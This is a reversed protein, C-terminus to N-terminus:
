RDEPELGMGKRDPAEPRKPPTYPNRELEELIHAIAADLQIDKGGAMKGPDDIVEIDPDVGHGEVGWTGDNEYFGFTPVNTDGGDVFGPNGSIGVLGGWTRMGILKGLKNFRFLWPFMDGGSGALGNILMCKPGQQADPPWPWDKGDRRAWLNTNPRNLLEIFRTPIQGGGNWREDIILAGRDIQGYFQRVLDNQGDIGTNPVYIYGVRGHTKDAVYARNKEIWARYRLGAESGEPKVVVDRAKDDMTPNESVTLTVNLGAMGELAAWPDRSTDVPVSNVALLYEGEKVESGPQKLPSRADSDWPAGEYIKTIRYAGNELAFDCGLLGVSINPEKEGDGFGRVYAHGVNLESIMEGIIYSLDERSSCDALMAEYQKRIAPWDVGHMNAVYFFDRHLRWAETFIQRWEERPDVDINMGAMPVAKDLKQDAAADVVFFSKGEKRVLLKKGDASIAYGGIDEAVKKEEKKDAKEDHMDFLHLSSKSRGPGRRGGRVYLLQGKDNVSLGGFNGRDVPLQFARAEFGELDIEVPKEDKKDEKDGDKDKDEDKEKKDGKADADKKDDGNEGDAKDEDKKDKDEPKEEDSKPALPSKVDKRLPVAHLRDTESYVWTTGIDEYVPSTFERNNAFYLFEGKRDFAPWTDNFMGSTVQHKEGTEVNYLWIAGQRNDGSKSYAIWRSDHSWNSGLRNAWPDTDILKTEGSEANCLYMAGTKDTFVIHKSDPSWDNLYRFCNGDKTLQRGEGKGDAATVYLEYEGTADSLYAVQKGDPSWIADREATGSTLTLRRPAGEKAPVTWIDGRAEFIARKGTSSINWSALFDAADIQKPRLKPRDGPIDVTVAKSQKTGLDLLHLEAGKQYVIEGQGNAGPGISPWKVDYDAVKTVQETKGTTTDYSWINLRHEPGADSLYYVTKAHWMPLTDTGEWDTIKKSENTKLNFLWVDTAMGGRYRKWTRFDRSHPTYALWAGDPSIAGNAGYPVPVQTPMGGTVPVTYLQQQRPLGAFGNTMYLLRGDPTWDCLQETAPHHTVRQSVGGEVPLTYLDRNGEYNGVFAIAKGDPSFKPMLDQGPPGALPSAMGGDRPVIWLDNAYAFVIHTASVDPFRLMGAHPRHSDNPAAAAVSTTVALVTLHIRLFRSIVIHGGINRVGGGDIM